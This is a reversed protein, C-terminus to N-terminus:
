RSQDPTRRDRRPCQTRRRRHHSSIWGTWYMKHFFWNMVLLLVLLSPLGTTALRCTTESFLQLLQWWFRPMTCPPLRPLVCSHTIQWLGARVSPVVPAGTLKAECIWLM